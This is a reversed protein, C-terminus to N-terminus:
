NFLSVILVHILLEEGYSYTNEIFYCFKSLVIPLCGLHINSAGHSFNYNGRTDLFYTSLVDGDM